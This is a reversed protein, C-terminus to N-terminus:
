YKLLGDLYTNALADPQTLWLEIIFHILTLTEVYDRLLTTRKHSWIRGASQFAPNQLSVCSLDPSEQLKRTPLM